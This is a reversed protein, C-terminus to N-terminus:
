KQENIMRRYKQPKFTGKKRELKAVRPRGLRRSIRSRMIKNELNSGSLNGSRSKIDWEIDEFNNSWENEKGEVDPHEKNFDEEGSSEREEEVLSEEGHSQTLNSGKREKLKSTDVDKSENRKLGLIEQDSPRRETDGVYFSDPSKMMSDEEEHEVNSLSLNKNKDNYPGSTRLHSTSADGTGNSSTSNMRQHTLTGLLGENSRKRARNNHTHHDRPHRDIRKISSYGGSGSGGGIASMNKNLSLDSYDSSTDVRFSKAKHYDSPTDDSSKGGRISGRRFGGSSVSSPHHFLEPEHKLGRSYRFDSIGSISSINSVYRSYHVSPMPLLELGNTYHQEFELEEKYLPNIELVKEGLKIKGGLLADLLQKPNGECQQVIELTRLEEIAISHRDDEPKIFAQLLLLLDRDIIGQLEWKLDKDLIETTIEQQREYSFHTCRQNRQMESTIHQTIVICAIKCQKVARFFLRCYEIDDDYLLDFDDLILLMNKNKLQSLFGFQVDMGLTDRLLDKMQYGIYSKDRLTKLPIYFVGDTFINRNLIFYGVHLAFATKGIGPVGTLEFIGRTQVLKPIIAYFDKRRGTYPIYMKEINTPYTSDSIDEIRGNALPFRGSGFLIESHDAGEPLLVPGRGIIQTIYTQPKNEFFKEGLYDFVKSRATEFADYISKQAILEQYFYLSFMDECEDEYVKHRFNVEVDVFDFTIIHPIKLSVFLEALRKNNKVGLILVDVLKGGEQVPPHQIGSSSERTLEEDEEDVPVEGSRTKFRTAAHQAKCASVKPLLSAEFAADEPLSSTFTHVEQPNGGEFTKAHHAKCASVKPLLEKEFKADEPLSTLQDVDDTSSAHHARKCASIKPLLKNQFEADEPLSTTKHLTPNAHAKKCASVKPLLSAEFAADETLAAMKHIDGDTAHDEEETKKAHHAKCASVKPLLENEFNADETLAFHHAKKCASVKPLLESEFNADETLASHHHAAKCASVKPLLSNEFNADETLAAINDSSKSSSCCVKPTFIQRLEDFTIRDVVGFETEVCLCNPESYTCNIQLVRCGSHVAEILEKRTLVGFKMCLVKNSEALADMLEHKFISALRTPFGIPVAEVQDDRGRKIDIIPAARM